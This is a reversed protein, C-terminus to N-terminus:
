RAAEHPIPPLGARQRGLALSIRNLAAYAETDSQFSRQGFPKKGDFMQMLSEPLMSAVSQHEGRRWRYVANPQGYVVEPRRCTFVVSGIPWARCVTAAIPITKWGTTKCRTCTDPSDHMDNHIYGGTCYRCREGCWQTMTCRVEWPLGYGDRVVVAGTPLTLEPLEEGNDALQDALMARGLADRPDALLQALLSASATYLTAAATMEEM